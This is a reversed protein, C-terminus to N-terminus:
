EEEVIESDESEAEPKAEAAQTRKKYLVYEHIVIVAVLLLLIKWWNHAIWTIILTSIILM